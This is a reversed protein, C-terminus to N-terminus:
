EDECVPCSEFPDHTHDCFPVEDIWKGEVNNWLKHENPCGKEHIFMARYAGTSVVSYACRDCWMKISNKEIYEDVDLENVFVFNFLAADATCQVVFDDWDSRDMDSIPMESISQVVRIEKEASRPTVMVGALFEEMEDEGIHVSLEYRPKNDKSLAEKLDSLLKDVEPGSYEWLMKGNEDVKCISGHTTYHHDTM